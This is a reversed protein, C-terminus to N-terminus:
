VSTAKKKNHNSSSSKSSISEKIIDQLEDDDDHDPSLLPRLPTNKKKKSSSISGGTQLHAMTKVHEAEDDRVAAFADYLNHIRPRRRQHHDSNTNKNNNNDDDNTTLLDEDIHMTDFMYMNYADGDDHYYDVAAQPPPLAKLIDEYETLFKEYTTFAHEEIVHNLNYAHTPNTMYLVLVFCYYLVALHQAIFRHSWQQSGGLEEMILLHHHENDSEAFHLRLYDAQRWIGITEYYHLVSLYAFYPMRAITELAYFRAYHQQQISTDDASPTIRFITDFVAGKLFGVAVQNFGVVEESLPTGLVTSPNDNSIQEKLILLSSSSRVIKERRETSISLSSRHHFQFCNSHQVMLIFVTVILFYYRETVVSRIMKIFIYEFLNCCFFNELFLFASVLHTICSNSSYHTIQNITEFACV